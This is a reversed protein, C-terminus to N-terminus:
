RSGICQPKLHTFQILTLGHVTLLSRSSKDNTSIILQGSEEMKGDLFLASLQMLFVLQNGLM